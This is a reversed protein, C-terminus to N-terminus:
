GGGARGGKGLSVHAYDAQGRGKLDVLATVQLCMRCRPPRLWCSLVGRSGHCATQPAAGCCGRQSQGGCLMCQACAAAAWHGYLAALALRAGAAPVVGRGGFRVNM